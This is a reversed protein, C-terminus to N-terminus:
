ATLVHSQQDSNGFIEHFLANSELMSCLLKVHKSPNSASSSTTSLSDKSRSENLLSVSREKVRDSEDGGVFVLLCGM